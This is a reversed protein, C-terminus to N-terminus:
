RLVQRGESDVREGGCKRLAKAAGCRRGDGLGRRLRACCIREDRGPQPGATASTARRLDLHLSKLRNEPGHHLLVAVEFERQRPLLREADTMWQLIAKDSRAGRAMEGPLGDNVLVPVRDEASVTGGLRVRQVGHLRVAAHRANSKGLGRRRLVGRVCRRAEDFADQWLM